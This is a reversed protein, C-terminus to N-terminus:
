YKPFVPVYCCNRPNQDLTTSAILQYLALSRYNRHWHMKPNLEHPWTPSSSQNTMTVTISNPNHTALTKPHQTLRGPCSFPICIPYFNMPSCNPPTEAPKPDSKSKANKTKSDAGLDTGAALTSKQDEHNHLRLLSSTTPPTTWVITFTDILFRVYIMKQAEKRYSSRGWLSESRQCSLGHLIIEYWETRSCTTFDSNSSLFNPTNEQWVKKNKGQEKEGM